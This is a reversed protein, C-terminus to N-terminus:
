PKVWIKYAVVRDPQDASCQAVGPRCVPEWATIEIEGRSIQEIIRRASARVAADGQGRIEKADIQYILGGPESPLIVVRSQHTSREIPKDNFDIWRPALFIFALILTVMVDYHFSGRQYEWLVYGRITRWARNM